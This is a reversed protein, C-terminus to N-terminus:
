SVQFSLNLFLPFSFAWHALILTSSFHSTHGEEDRPGGVLHGKPTWGRVCGVRGQNLPLMVLNMLGPQLPSLPSTDATVTPTLGM